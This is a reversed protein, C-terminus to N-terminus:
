TGCEKNIRTNQYDSVPATGPSECKISRPRSKFCIRALPPSEQHGHSRSGSAKVPADSYRRRQSAINEGTTNRVWM